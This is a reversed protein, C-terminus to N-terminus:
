PAVHINITGEVSHLWIQWCGNFFLLILAALTFETTNCTYHCWQQRCHRAPIHTNGICHRPTWLQLPMVTSGATDQQFPLTEQAIGQHGSSYHCWQAAQLTKSSHSHKRHLAKTDLATTTDSHQRPTKSPHSHKMHSAKTDSSYSYCITCYLCTDQNFTSSQCPWAM